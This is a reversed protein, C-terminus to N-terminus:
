LHSMATNANHASFSIEQIKREIRDIRNNLIEQAIQATVKVQEADKEYKQRVRTTDGRGETTNSTSLKNCNLKLRKSM